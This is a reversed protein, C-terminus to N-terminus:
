SKTVPTHVNEVIKLRENDTNSEEFNVDFTTDREQFYPRLYNLQDEYTHKKKKVAKGCSKKWHM